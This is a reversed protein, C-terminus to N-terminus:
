EKKKCLFIGCIFIVIGIVSVIGAAIGGTKPLNNEQPTNVPALPIEEDEIEVDPEPISDAPVEEDEIIAEDNVPAEPGQKEEIPNGPVEKDDIETSSSSPTNSPRSTPTDKEDQSFELIVRFSTTLNQMAKEIANLGLSLTVEQTKGSALVKHQVHEKLYTNYTELDMSNGNDDYGRLLEALEKGSDQQELLVVKISDIKTAKRGFNKITPTIKFSAGPYLNSINFALTTATNEVQKVDIYENETTIEVKEFAMNYEESGIVSTTDQNYVAAYSVQLLLSFIILVIGLVRRKKM